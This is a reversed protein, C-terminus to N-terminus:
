WFRWNINAYGYFFIMIFAHGTIVVNYLHSNGRFILSGPEALELRIFVSFITGLVGSFLGFLLYLVGVFKHNTTLFWRQFFGIEEKKKLGLAGRGLMKEVVDKM